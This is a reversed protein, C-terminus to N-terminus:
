DTSAGPRQLYRDLERCLKDFSPSRSRCLSLDMRATLKPQDSTERYHRGRGAPHPPQHEGLTRRFHRDIRGKGLRAAEPADPAQEPLELQEQLSEIAAVFWTEYEPNALVCAVTLGRAHNSACRLLEPALRCAADEDADLLLLIMAPDTSSPSASLRRAALNISKGLEYEQVQGRRVLKSRHQRIPTLVEIYEGALLETWIRQLLIRISREDGHGEVVPAVRLRSM